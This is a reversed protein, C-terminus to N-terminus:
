SAAVDVARAARGLQRAASAPRILGLADELTVWRYADHEDSLHVSADGPAEALFVPWIPDTVALQIPLRLGTEEELERRACTEVPEGPFRSGSPCGWEWEGPRDARDRHAPNTHLLLWQLGLADRRWVAIAAGHPPDPAIPLGDWTTAMPSDRQYPPLDRAPM